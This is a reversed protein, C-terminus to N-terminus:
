NRSSSRPCARGRTQYGTCFVFARWALLAVCNWATVALGLSSIERAPPAKAVQQREEKLRQRERAVIAEAPPISDVQIEIPGCGCECDCSAEAPAPVAAAEPSPAYVSFQGPAERWGHDRRWGQDAFEPQDVLLRTDWGHMRLGRELLTAEDIELPRTLLVAHQTQYLIRFM